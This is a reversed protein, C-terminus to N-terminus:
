RGGRVGARARRRRRRPRRGSARTRRRAARRARRPPGRRARRRRARETLRRGAPQAAPQASGARAAITFADQHRKLTGEVLKREGIDDLEHGDGSLRAHERHRAGGLLAVDIQLVPLDRVRLEALDLALVRDVRERQPVLARELERRADLALGARDAARVRVQEELRGAPAVFPLDEGPLDGSGVRNGHEHGALARVTRDGQRGSSHLTTVFASPWREISSIARARFVDAKSM